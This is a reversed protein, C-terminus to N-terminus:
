VSGGSDNGKERVISSDLLALLMRRFQQWIVDEPLGKEPRIALQFAAGNILALVSRSLAEIQDSDFKDARRRFNSKLKKVVM